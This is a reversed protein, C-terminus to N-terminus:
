KLAEYNYQKLYTGSYLVLYTGSSTITPPGTNTGGGLILFGSCWLFVILLLLYRM